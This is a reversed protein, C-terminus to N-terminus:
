EPLFKGRNGNNEEIGKHIVLKKGDKIGAQYTKHDIRVSQYGYSILRPYRMKIFRILNKDKAIILASITKGDSYQAENIQCKNKEIEELKKRFGNLVGLWYSRKSKNRTKANKQHIDWMINLQNIIFFYVHQAIRVNEPTGLIEITKYTQCSEHDFQYSHVIDVFYFDILIGCIRRQFSATRKKKLTIIEYVYRSGDGKEIRQINHKEILEHAKKMALFAENENLSKALSFLKRVKELMKTKDSYFRKDVFRRVTDPFDGSASRFEEPVGIMDCAKRYMEGHIEKCQFIEDVIEHAIEHKLIQIVMDWSYKKILHSSIKITRFEGNWQGLIKKSDVIEIVPQSLNVRYNRCVEKHERYLQATWARRLSIENKSINM